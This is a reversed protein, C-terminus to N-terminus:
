ESQVKPVIFVIRNVLSFTDHIKDQLEQGELGAPLEVEVSALYSQSSYDVEAPLKKQFSATLKIM